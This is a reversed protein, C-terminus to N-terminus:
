PTSTSDSSICASKTYSSLLCIGNAEIEGSYSSCETVKVDGDFVKLVAPSCIASIMACSRSLLSDTFLTMFLSPYMSIGTIPSAAILAAYVPHSSHTSASTDYIYSLIANISFYRDSLIGTRCIVCGSPM